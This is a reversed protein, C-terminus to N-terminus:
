DREWLADLRHPLPLRHRIPTQTGGGGWLGVGRTRDPRGASGSCTWGPPGHTQGVGYMQVM